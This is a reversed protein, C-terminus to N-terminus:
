KESSMNEKRQKSLRTERKEPTENAKIVRYRELYFKSRREISMNKLKNRKLANEKERYEQFQEPTKNLMSKRSRESGAAIYEKRQEDSMTRYMKQKYKKERAKNAAERENSAEIHWEDYADRYDPDDSYADPDSDDEQYHGKSPEFSNPKRPPKGGGGAPQGFGGPQNSRSPGAMMKIIYGELKECLKPILISLLKNLYYYLVLSTIFLLFALVIIIINYLYPFLVKFCPNQIFFVCVKLLFLFVFSFCFISFVLSM